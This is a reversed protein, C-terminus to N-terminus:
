LTLVRIINHAFVGEGNQVSLKNLAKEGCHGFPTHGLDHGLAAAEILDENLGLARGITRAIKSVFHVHTIRKSVNDNETFTSDSVEDVLRLGMWTSFRYTPYSIPHGYNTDTATGYILYAKGDALVEEITCNTLAGYLVKDGINFYRSPTPVFNVEAEAQKICSVKEQALREETTLEKKVTKRAM